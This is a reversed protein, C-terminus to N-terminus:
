RQAEPQYREAGVIRAPAAGWNPIVVGPSKDAGTVTIHSIIMSKGSGREGDGGTWGAGGGQAATGTARGQPHCSKIPPPPTPTPPPPPPLQPM